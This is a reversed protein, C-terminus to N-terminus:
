WPKVSDVLKQAEAKTPRYVIDITALPKDMAFLKADSKFLFYQSNHFDQTVRYIATM